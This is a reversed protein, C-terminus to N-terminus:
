HCGSVGRAHGLCGWFDGQCGSQMVRAGSFERQWAGCGGIFDTTDENLDYQKFLEAMTMRNLDYGKHSRPDSPDYEQVYRSVSGFVCMGDHTM